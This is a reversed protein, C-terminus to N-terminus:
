FMALMSEHVDEGMSIAMTSLARDFESENILASTTGLVGIQNSAGFPTTRDFGSTWVIKRQGPQPHLRELSFSCNLDAVYETAILVNEAALNTPIYTSTSTASADSVYSAGNVFGKLIADAQDPSSVLKVRRHASLSQLVANYVINEVGPKYTNNVLSAVYIKRIGEKESLPSHSTQFGYGCGTLVTLFALVALWTASSYFRTQQTKKFQFRM